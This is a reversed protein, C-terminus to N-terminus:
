VDCGCHVVVQQEEISKSSVILKSKEGYTLTLEGKKKRLLGRLHVHHNVRLVDKKEYLRKEIARDDSLRLRDLDMAYDEMEEDALEEKPGDVLSLISMSSSSLTAPPVVHVYSGGPTMVDFRHGEFSVRVVIVSGSSQKRM